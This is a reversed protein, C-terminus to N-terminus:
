ILENKRCFLIPVLEKNSEIIEKAEKLENYLEENFSDYLTNIISDYGYNNKYIWSLTTQQNTLIPLPLIKKSLIRKILKSIGLYVLVMNATYQCNDDIAYWDSSIYEVNSFNKIHITIKVHRINAITKQESRVTYAAISYGKAYDSFNYKKIIDNTRKQTISKILNTEEWGLNGMDFNPETMNWYLQKLKDIEYQLREKTAEWQEFAEMRSLKSAENRKLHFLATLESIRDRIAQFTKNMDIAVTSDACETLKSMGMCPPAEVIKARPLLSTIKNVISLVFQPCGDEEPEILIREIMLGWETEVFVIEAFTYDYYIYMGRDEITIDEQPCGIEILKARLKELTM